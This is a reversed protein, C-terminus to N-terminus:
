DTVGLNTAIEIIGPWLDSRIDFSKALEVRSKFLSQAYSAISKTTSLHDINFSPLQLFKTYAEVSLPKARNFYHLTFLYDFLSAIINAQLLSTTLYPKPSEDGESLISVSPTEATVGQLIDEEKHVILANPLFHHISATSMVSLHPLKIKQAVNNHNDFIQDVTAKTQLIKRMLKGFDTVSADGITIISKSGARACLQSAEKVENVVPYLTKMTIFTSQIGQTQLTFWMKQALQKSHADDKSVIVTMPGVVTRYDVGLNWPNTAINSFRRASIKLM